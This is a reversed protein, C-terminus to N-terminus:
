FKPGNNNSYPPEAAWMAAYHRGNKYSGMSTWSSRSIKGLFVPKPERRNFFVKDFMVRLKQSVRCQLTQTRTFRSRCFISDQEFRKWFKKSPHIWFFRAFILTKESHTQKQTLCCRVIPSNKTYSCVQIWKLM